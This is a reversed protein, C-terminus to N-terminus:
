PCNSAIEGPSDINPTIEIKSKYNKPIEIIPQYSKIATEVKDIKTDPNCRKASIGINTTSSCYNESSPNNRAPTQPPYNTDVPQCVYKVYENSM